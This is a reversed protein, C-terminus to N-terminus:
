RVAMGFSGLGTSVVSIKADGPVVRAGFEELDVWQRRQLNAITLSTEGGASSLTEADYDFELKVPKPFQTIQRIAKPKTYDVQCAKLEIPTPLLKLQSSSNLANSLRTVEFYTGVEVTGPLINFRFNSDPLSLITNGQSDVTQSLSPTSDLTVAFLSNSGEELPQPLALAGSVVNAYIDTRSCLKVWSQTTPDYMNLQLQEEQALPAYSSRNLTAEYDSFITTLPYTVWALPLSVPLNHQPLILNAIAQSPQQVGPIQAVASEDYAVNIVISPNFEEVTNSEGRIWAGFFFPSGILKDTPPLVNAPLGAYYARVLVPVSVSGLPFDILIDPTLPDFAGEKSQGPEVHDPRQGPPVKGPSVDEYGTQAMAPGYSLWDLGEYPLPVFILPLLGVCVVLFIIIVLLKTKDKM